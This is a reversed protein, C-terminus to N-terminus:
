DELQNLSFDIVPTSVKDQRIRALVRDTKQISGSDASTVIAYGETIGHYMDLALIDISDALGGVGLTPISLGFTDSDTGISNFFVDLSITPSEDPAAVKIDHTLQMQATILRTAYELLPHESLFHIGLGVSEGRMEAIEPQTMLEEIFQNLSYTVLRQATSGALPDVIQRTSCGSIVISSLLAIVLFRPHRQHKFRLQTM